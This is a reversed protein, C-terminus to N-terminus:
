RNGLVAYDSTMHSLNGELNLASGLIHNPVTDLNAICTSSDSSTPRGNGLM